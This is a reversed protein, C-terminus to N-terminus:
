NRVTCYKYGRFILFSTLGISYFTHDYYPALTRPSPFFGQPIKQRYRYTILKSKSEPTPIGTVDVKQGPPPPLCGLVGGWRGHMSALWSLVNFNKVWTVDRGM